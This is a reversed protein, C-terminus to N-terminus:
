GKEGGGGHIAKRKESQEGRDLNEGLAQGWSDRDVYVYNQQGLPKRAGVQILRVKQTGMRRSM